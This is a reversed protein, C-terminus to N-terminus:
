VHEFVPPNYFCCKNNIKLKIVRYNCNTAERGARKARDLTSYVGIATETAAHIVVFVEPEKPDSLNVFVKKDKEASKNKFYDFFM